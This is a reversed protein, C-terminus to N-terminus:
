KEFLNFCVRHSPLSDLGPTRCVMLHEDIIECEPGYYVGDEYMVVMRPRQLM